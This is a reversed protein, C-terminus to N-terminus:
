EVTSLESYALPLIGQHFYLEKLMMLATDESEWYCAHSAMAFLYENVIEFPKEQLVYDIRKGYNLSGIPKIKGKPEEEGETLQLEEDVMRNVEDEVDKPPEISKHALAFDQISNWTARISDVVRQRLDIISEKIQLHMRKRGKHHPILLPKITRYSPDILPEIRYAIPDFPHFINFMRNCTPLRYDSSLTEIGRVTLFMAIPSGMAFFCSPNFNLKPYDISPYGTGHSGAASYNVAISEKRQSDTNDNSLQKGKSLIKKKIDLIKKTPGLPIGLNKLDDENMLLFSEFDIKEEQFKALYEDLGCFSCLSEIDNIDNLKNSDFCEDKSHFCEDNSDQIEENNQHALIDFVIVSGLSHGGLAVTGNFSPNRQKFLQFLRNVESSVTNVITQCYLPSTYFLADLITDNTFYRLKPISNLTILKLRSDIGTEDGHLASHWSVPLLEIRGITGTDLHQKFHTKLLSLHINRFDDVVEVISRFRLDCIEGIGHVLFVLHDVQAPEGEEIDFELAGRQVPRPRVPNEAMSGWEDPQNLENKYHYISQPNYMVIVEQDPFTVQQNWKNNIFAQKYLEELQAAFDEAYPFSYTDGEKKYFWTCRRVSSPKEDWYVAKRHRENVYVDYRGGNTAVIFNPESYHEIWAQELNMSDLMSFPMWIERNEIFKQFFWHPQVAIYYNSYNYSYDVQAQIPQEHNTQQVNENSSQPYSNNYNSQQQQQQQVTEQSSTVFSSEGPCDGAIQQPYFIATKDPSYTPVQFQSSPAEQNTNSPLNPQSTEMGHNPDYLRLPGSFLKILFKTTRFLM